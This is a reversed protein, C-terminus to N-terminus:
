WEKDESSMMKCRLYKRRYAPNDVFYALNDKGDVKHVIIKGAAVAERVLHYCISQYKKKLQSEAFAFNKYVAENDCFVNAPENVQIRFM